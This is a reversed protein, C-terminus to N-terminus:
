CRCSWDRINFAFLSVRQVGVLYIVLRYVEWYGMREGSKYMKVNFSDSRGCIYLTSTYGVKFLLSLFYM